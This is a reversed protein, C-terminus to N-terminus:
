GIQVDSRMGLIWDVKVQRFKVMTLYEIRTSRNPRGCKSLMRYEERGTLVELWRKGLMQDDMIWKSKM